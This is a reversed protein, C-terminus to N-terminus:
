FLLRKGIHKDSEVVCLRSMYNIYLTVLDNKTNTISIRLSVNFLVVYDKNKNKSNLTSNDKGDHIIGWAKACDSM